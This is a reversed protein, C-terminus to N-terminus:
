LQDFSLYESVLKILDNRNERDALEIMRKVRYKITNVSVFLTEALDSYRKGLYIGKLISLDLKDCQSILDELCFIRKVDEDSYFDIIEASPIAFSVDARDLPPTFATTERVQITGAIKAQLSTLLVNKSLLMCLKVAQRGIMICDYSVTTISPNILRSLLTDGLATVWLDEPISVARKKLFNILKIAAVDSCSIVSDFEKIQAFFAMCTQELNGMNEFVCGPVMIDHEKFEMFAERKSVDGTSDPNYGFLAIRTRGHSSLYSCLSRIMRAYDAYVCSVDMLPIDIFPSVLVVHIGARQLTTITQPLWSMSTGILMLLHHMNNVTTDAKLVDVHDKNIKCIRIGNQSAEYKIGKVYQRCWHAGSFMPEIMM